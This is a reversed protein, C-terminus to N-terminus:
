KDHYHLKIEPSSALRQRLVSPFSQVIVRNVLIVLNLHVEQNQQTLYRTLRSLTSLIHNVYQMESNCALTTYVITIVYLPYQVSCVHWLSLLVAKEPNNEHKSGTILPCYHIEIVPICGIM